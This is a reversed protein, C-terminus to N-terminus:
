PGVAARCISQPLPDLPPIELARRLVSADAINCDDPGDIVSCKTFGAPDLAFIGALSARIEDVDDQQVLGDHTGSVVHADGCQCVDGSGDPGSTGLGGADSQNANAVFVCNDCADGVTDADTDTQPTNPITPCNDSSDPIGDGDGDPVATYARVGGVSGFIGYGVYLSGQATTTARSSSIAPLTYTQLRNGDSDYAYLAAATNTGVFAVGNQASVHGWSTGIEDTWLTGGTAADVAMFHEPAPVTAPIFAYLAAYFRGADFGMAGNFLGYGAFSPSVPTPLVTNTWAPTGDTENLAYISGNKSASVVITKTGGLGDPVTALHPGNVFGFDHYYPKTTCAAGGCDAATGCETAPANSCYGFQEPPNVRRVWQPNGTAADLKMISDSDAVSPFTYCGITNVYLSTGTPDVVPSATVGAGKADVCTNGAGCDADVLCSVDTDNRCIRDPVNQRTWLPGGTALDVAVTRGRTCPQDSHSAIGAYVRGNSITPTSWIHDVVPDGLTVSWVAAGTLGDRRWLVSRSDGFVVDGDPAIAVGSQIGLVGSSGTDFSWAPVGTDEDLAYISGDWSTAYVLGANVTPSSTVGKALPFSWKIALNGANAPTIPVDQPLPPGGLDNYYSGLAIFMEDETTVGGLVPCADCVGDGAGATTDCFSDSGNCLQGAKTGGLCAVTSNPCPGGPGLPLGYVLPPAPSTSQQKVPPSTPTSGNDYQSCYLYTRDEVATSDLPVPPVFRMQLPDAYETSLYLPPTPKPVCAPQGPTCPTNPPAWTRFQVGHRHTHSGLEFLRAGRPVTYSRCYERTQYPPVNEVFISDDDFIAQVPFVQDSPGAFDLNEYQSMTTPTTTLNFAHSNWVVVGQFPLVNYVGNAFEVSTYPEQSGSWSPANAATYDPPGYGICAISSVVSGSCGPNYGLAPDIAGPDCSTGQLPDPTQFKYEMAGWGAHTRPYVGTYLHIISHHSQPDQWLTHGHYAFCRGSPNNANLFNSPCPVEASAPILGPATFDYYTAMCVEDEDQAALPWPTQRLQVGTGPAPAPPIPITLPDAEPLCTDLLEATGAVVLDQPAGGRVWLYLAQLHEPTLAPLGGAPMPGGGSVPEGTTAWKLKRYLFSLEPEGPEVRAMTANGSSSVGVLNAYSFAPTLRLGAQPAFDGHCLSNTCGYAASDFIVDQIAEYTSDYTTTSGCPVHDARAFGWASLLVIGTTAAHLKRAISM